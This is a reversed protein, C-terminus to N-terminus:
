KVDKLAQKYIEKKLRVRSLGKLKEGEKQLAKIPDKPLPKLLIGEKRVEVAVFEDGFDLAAKPLVIRRKSDLKMIEM